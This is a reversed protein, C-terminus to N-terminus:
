NWDRGGNWGLAVKSLWKLSDNLKKIGNQVQWLLRFIRTGIYNTYRRAFSHSRNKYKIFEISKKKLAKALIEM